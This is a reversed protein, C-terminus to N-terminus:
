RAPNRLRVRRAAAFGGSRLEGARGGARLGGARGGSRLRGARGGARLGCARPATLGELYANMDALMSRLPQGQLEPGFLAADARRFQVPLYLVAGQEILRQGTYYPPRDFFRDAGGSRLTSGTACGVILTSALAAAAVAIPHAM